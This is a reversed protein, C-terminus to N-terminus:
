ESGEEASAAKRKRPRSMSTLMRSSSSASPPPPPPPPPPVSASLSAAIAIPTLPHASPQSPSPLLLAASRPSYQVPTSSARPGPRNPRANDVVPELVYVAFAAEYGPVAVANPGLYPVPSHRHAYSDYAYFGAPSLRPKLYIQAAYHGADSASPSAAAAATSTASGTISRMVVSELRFFYKQSLIQVQVRASKSWDVRDLAGRAHKATEGQGLTTAFEFAIIPPPHVQEFGPRTNGTFYEDVVDQMTLRPEDGRRSLRELESVVHLLAPVRKRAVIHYADAWGLIGLVLKDMAHFRGDVKPENVYQGSAYMLACFEDRIEKDIAARSKTKSERQLDAYEVFAGLQKKQLSHRFGGPQGDTSHFLGRLLEIAVDIACSNDCWQLLEEKLTVGDVVLDVAFDSVAAASTEAEVEAAAAAPAAPSILPPPPPPPPPLAPRAPSVRSQPPPPPAASAVASAASAVELTMVRMALSSVTSLLLGFTLDRSALDSKWEGLVSVLKELAEIRAALDPLPRLSLNVAAEHVRQRGEVELMRSGVVGELAVFRGEFTNVASTEMERQVAKAEAAIAAEMRSNVADVTQRLEAITHDTDADAKKLLEICGKVSELGAVSSTTADVLNREVAEIDATRKDLLRSLDAADVELKGARSNLSLVNKELLELVNAAPATFKKVEAKLGSVDKKLDRVDGEVDSLAVKAGRQEARYRGVDSTILKVAEELTNSSGGNKVSVGCAVGRNRCPWTSACM